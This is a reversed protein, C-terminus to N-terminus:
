YAHPNIFGRFLSVFLIWLDLGLSWNSIYYLDYQVRKRLSTGGRLGNVQAWGTMGAKVQNRLMYRPVNERFRQILEPREPRPGVLSMQGLLVNFLQPLEDLSTRRLFRGIWTVRVDDSSAWVAGTGAEANDIMTRFKVITFVRDGLSARKQCYFVPGRSTLKVAAAFIIMPIAFVVMAAISGFIDLIRKSVSNWGHQPSHTM